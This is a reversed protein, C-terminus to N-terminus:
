QFRSNAIVMEFAKACDLLSVGENRDGFNFGGHVDDYGTSTTWIYGNFDGGLLLEM